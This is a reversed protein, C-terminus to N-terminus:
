KNNLRFHDTIRSQIIDFETKKCFAGSKLSDTIDNFLQSSMVTNQHHLLDGYKQKYEIIRRYSDLVRTRLSLGISTQTAAVNMLGNFIEKFDGSHGELMIIDHGSIISKAAFLVDTNTLPVLNHPWHKALSNSLYKDSLMFMADTMILGKFGYEKKLMDIWVPSFTAMNKADIKSNYIHTTMIINSNQAVEKFINTIRSVMAPSLETDRNIKHLNFHTPTYPFHKETTEVGITQFANKLLSHM